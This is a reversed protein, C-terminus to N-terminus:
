KEMRTIKRNVVRAPFMVATEFTLQGFEPEDGCASPVYWLTITGLTLRRNMGVRAPFM